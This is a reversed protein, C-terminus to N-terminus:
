VNVILPVMVPLPPSTPPPVELRTIPPVPFKPVSVKLPEVESFSKVRLRVDEPITVNPPLRVRTPTNVWVAPVKAMPLLVKVILPAYPGAFGSSRPTVLPEVNITSPVPDNGDSIPKLPAVNPVKVSLLAEVDNGVVELMVILLRLKNEPVNVFPAPIVIPVPPVIVLVPPVM